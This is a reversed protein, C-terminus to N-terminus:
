DGRQNEPLHPLRSTNKSNHGELVTEFHEVTPFPHYFHHLLRRWVQYEPSRRFGITHDELREWNVLLVYKSSSELCRQLRHSIYGPMGSILVQAEGFAHEFAANQGPRVNLIAIELIM